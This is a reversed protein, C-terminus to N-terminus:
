NNIKSSIEIYNEINNIYLSLIDFQKINKNKYGLEKRIDLILREIKTAQNNIYKKINEEKNSDQNKSNINIISNKFTTWSKLVNDSAYIVLKNQYEKIENVINENNSIEGNLVNKIIWNLFDIYIEEREKRIQNKIAYKNEFYKGVPVSIFALLGTILAVAITPYRDIVIKIASLLSQGLKIAITVSFIILIIGIILNFVEMKSAFFNNKAKPM